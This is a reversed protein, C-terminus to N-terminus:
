RFGDIGLEGIWTKYIEIMGDVVRPHETFLDDLGFFDGYYSDESVFTTNGRNHYLTVDNLWSPSRSTSSMSIWSRRTRSRCARTWRRSAVLGPMTATTSPRAPLRETHNRTRRFMRRVPARRM